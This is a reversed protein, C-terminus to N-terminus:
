GLLDASNSSSIGPGNANKPTFCVWQQLKQQSRTVNMKSAHTSLMVLRTWFFFFGHIDFQSYLLVFFFLILAVKYCSERAKILVDSQIKDNNGEAAYAGMAMASECILFSQQQQQQHICPSFKKFLNYILAWIFPLIFVHKKKWIITFFNISPVGWRTGIGWMKWLDWNQVWM